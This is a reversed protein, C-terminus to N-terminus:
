RKPCLGHGNSSVIKDQNRKECVIADQRKPNRGAYDEVFEDLYAKKTDVVKGKSEAFLFKTALDYHRYRKNPFPFKSHLIREKAIAKIASASTRWLCKTRRRPLRRRSTLALVDGRDNGSRGDRYLHRDAPLQRIPNKLGSLEQGLEAYTM